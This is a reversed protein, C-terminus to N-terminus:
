SAATSEFLTPTHSRTPRPTDPRSSLIMRAWEEMLGGLEQELIIRAAQLNVRDIERVKSERQKGTRFLPQQQM